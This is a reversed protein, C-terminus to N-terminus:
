TESLEAHPAAPNAPVLRMVAAAINARRAYNPSDQLTVFRDAHLQRVVQILRIFQLLVM